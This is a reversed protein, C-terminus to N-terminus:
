YICAMGLVNVRVHATKQGAKNKATISYRGSHSRNCEPIIIESRTDTAEVQTNYSSLSM